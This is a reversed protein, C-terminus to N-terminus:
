RTLFSEISEPSATGSQVMWGATLSGSATLPAKGVNAGIPSVYWRGYRDVTVSGTWGVLTAVYPLPPNINLTFQYYDPLRFLTKWQGPIAGGCYQVGGITTCVQGGPIWQEITGGATFRIGTCDNNPCVAALGSAVLRQAIGCNIAIGDMRCGTRMLSAARAEMRGIRELVRDIHEQIRDLHDEPDLGLPDILNTPNNLVYPYRNLSQPNLIDGALPDPSLWRGLNSAYQRFLTHDLGSEGDREMGTFKYNQACTNTFALEYGFPLFDADYCLTGNSTTIARSSGLHDGFYYYVNGSSDRRGIRRGAFFVYENVVNGSLDTGALVETGLGYWYLTGNSKKVRRGDGDYTYSVSATSTLLNEANWAYSLVGDSTLDGAADYAFGANTIRNQTNVSLSLAPASCKTVSITTLNGRADYGFNQGWCEAGSAAQSQGTAIRNLSDYTFSQSRNTNRNNTITSVNANAFYSYGLSLVTSSASSASIASPLLRNNYSYSSTIGGFSASEQGLIASSLAGQPAYLASLAYNISNATDKAETPRAANSYTYSIVRGSPYTISTLLGGLNYAYQIQKTMGAITRREKVIRGTEDYSWATASTGDCNGECM